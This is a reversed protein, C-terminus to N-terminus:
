RREYSLVESTIKKDLEEISSRILQGTQLIQKFDPMNMDSILFQDWSRHIRHSLSLIVEMNKLLGSKLDARKAEDKALRQARLVIEPQKIVLDRGKGDGDRWACYLESIDRTSM